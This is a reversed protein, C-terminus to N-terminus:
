FGEECRETGPAQGIRSCADTERAAQCGPQRALCRISEQYDTEGYQHNDEAKPPDYINEKKFGNAILTKPSKGRMPIVGYVVDKWWNSDPSQREKLLRRCPSSRWRMSGAKIGEARTLIDALEGDSLLAVDDFEHEAAKLNREALARCQAKVRCFQCHKGPVFDGEGKFASAAAPKLVAEGWAALDDAPLEYESISDLRPQYITMRVKDIAYMFGFMDLAGLAYLMM